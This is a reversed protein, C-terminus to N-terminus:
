VVKLGFGVGQVRNGAVWFGFGLVWFGFGLVCFGFGL